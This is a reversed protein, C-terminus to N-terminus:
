RGPPAAAPTHCSPPSIIPFFPRREYYWEEFPTGNRRDKRPVGAAALGPSRLRDLVWGAMPPPVANGFLAYQDYVSVARCHDDPFGQIRAYEVNTM